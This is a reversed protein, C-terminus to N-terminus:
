RVYPVRPRDSDAPPRKPSSPSLAVLRREVDATAATWSFKLPECGEVDVTVRVPVTRWADAPPTWAYRAASCGAKIEATSPDLTRGDPLVVRKVLTELTPAVGVFTSDDGTLDEFGSVGVLARGEARFCLMWRRYGHRPAEECPPLDFFGDADPAVDPGTNEGMSCGAGFSRYGSWPAGDRPARPTAWGPAGEDGYHGNASGAPCRMARVIPVGLEDVLRARFRMWRRNPVREERVVVGDTVDFAPPDAADKRADLCQVRYRGPPLRPFVYGEVPVERELRMEDGATWLRDEPVDLRWLRVRMAVPERVVDGTLRLRLTSRGHTMESEPVDGDCVPETSEAAPREFALDIPRAAVVNRFRAEVVAGAVFGVAVAVVSGFLGRVKTM